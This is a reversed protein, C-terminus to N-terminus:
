NAVALLCSAMGFVSGDFTGRYSLDDDDCETEPSVKVLCKVASHSRSSEVTGIVDAAGTLRAPLLRLAVETDDYKDAV